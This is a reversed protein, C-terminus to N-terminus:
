VQQADVFGRVIRWARIAIHDVGRQGKSGLGGNDVLGEGLAHQLLISRTM